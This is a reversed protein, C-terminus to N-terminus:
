LLIVWRMQFYQCLHCKTLPHNLRRRGEGDETKVNYVENM